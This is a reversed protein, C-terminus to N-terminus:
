DECDEENKKKRKRQPKSIIKDIDQKALYRELKQIKNYPFYLEETIYKKFTKKLWYGLRPNITGKPIGKTQGQQGVKREFQMDFIYSDREKSRLYKEVVEGNAKKKIRVQKDFIRNYCLFRYGREEHSTIKSFTLNGFRELDIIPIKNKSYKLIIMIKEVRDDHLKNTL